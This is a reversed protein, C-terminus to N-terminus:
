RLGSYILAPVILLMKVESFLFLTQALRQLQSQPPQSQSTTNGDPTSGTSDASGVQRLFVFSFTGAAAIISLVTFVFQIDEGLNLLLAALLNGIVANLMFLSFFQLVHCFYEILIIKVARHSLVCWAALTVEQTRM